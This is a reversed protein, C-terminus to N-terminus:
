KIYGTTNDSSAFLVSFIVLFLAIVKGQINGFAFDMLTFKGDSQSSVGVNIGINVVEEEQEVSQSQQEDVDKMEAKIMGTSWLTVAAMVILIVYFSKMKFMKYLDMRIARSM